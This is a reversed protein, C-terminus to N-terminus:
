PIILVQGARILRPNTIGNAKAIAGVTTGFKAAIGGLTDGSRVTYRRADTPVPTPSPAATSPAPTSTLPPSSSPTGASPTAAPATPPTTDGPVPSPTTGSPAGSAVVGAAVGGSPSPGQASPTTTRAIVLVLFALVMLAVLLTQGGARSRTGPLPGSRGRSPELVLPTARVAPWLLSEEIRPEPLVSAPGPWSGGAAGYTACDVHGPTLCIQRQKGLALPAPPTIAWCRHERSAYASRWGGDLSQLLPCVGPVAQADRRRDARGPAGDLAPMLTRASVSPDTM